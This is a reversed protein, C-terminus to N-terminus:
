TVSPLYLNNDDSLLGVYYVSKEFLKASILKCIIFVFILNYGTDPNVVIVKHNGLSIM